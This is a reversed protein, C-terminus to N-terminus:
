GIVNSTRNYTFCIALSIFYDFHPLIFTQFFQLRTEYSLFLKSKLSFLAGRVKKCTEEVNTVFSLTSAWCNSFRSLVCLMTESSKNMSLVSLKWQVLRSLQSSIRKTGTWECGISRAGHNWNILKWVYTISVNYSIKGLFMFHRIMLLCSM